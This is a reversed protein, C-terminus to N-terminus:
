TQYRKYKKKKQPITIKTNPYIINSTHNPQFSNWKDSSESQNKAHKKEFPDKSKNILKVMTM